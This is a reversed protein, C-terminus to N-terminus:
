RKITGEVFIDVIQEVVTETSPRPTAPDAPPQGISFDFFTGFFMQAALEPNPLERVVGREIQQRLYQALMLSQQLPTQAIVERVEHRHQAECIMMLIVKRYRDLMELFIRGIRLLDQRYDGTLQNELAAGLDPVASFREIVAMLLKKKSGFHRFLTVENVNAEDAIAHTPAGAYGARSFVRSAAQLIRERTEEVPSM